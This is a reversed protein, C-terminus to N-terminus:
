SGRAQNRMERGTEEADEQAETAENGVEDAEQQAEEAEERAQERAEQQEREMERGHERAEDAFEQARERDIGGEAAEDALERAADDMGRDAKGGDENAREREQREERSTRAQAERAREPLEIDNAVSESVAQGEEQEEVVDITVEAPDDALVPAAFGATLLAFGATWIHLQKM